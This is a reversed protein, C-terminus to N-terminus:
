FERRLTAVAEAERNSNYTLGLSVFDRDERGVAGELHLGVTQLGADSYGLKTTKRTVRGDETVWSPLTLSVSTQTAPEVRYLATLTLGTDAVAHTAGLTLRAQRSDRYLAFNGGATSGAREFQLEVRSFAEWDAAPPWAFAGAVATKGAANDAGAMGLGEGLGGATGGTLTHQTVAFSASAAEWDRTLQVGMAKQEGVGQGTFATMAAGWGHGLNRSFGLGISQSAALDFRNRALMLDEAGAPTLRMPTLAQSLTDFTTDTALTLRDGGHLSLSAVTEGSNLQSYGTMGAGAYRLPVREGRRTLKQDLSEAHGAGVRVLSSAELQFPARQFGDVALLTSGSAALAARLKAAQERPVSVAFASLPQTSGTVSASTPVFLGDVPSAAAGLDLLGQGYSATDAYVGTRNATHLVREVIQRTTLSPFKEMLVALSGSVVPAAMSTGMMPGYGGGPATSISPAMGDGGFAALCWQATETTGCANSYSALKGTSDVAVVALWGGRLEAFKEPLRAWFQPNAASDNGAAFVVVANGNVVQRLANTTSPMFAYLEDATRFQTIDIDMGWSNNLVRAGKDGALSFIAAFDADGLQGGVGIPLLSAGWAVGHMGKGDKAAGIIGAVHTGHGDNDVIANPDGPSGFMRGGAAIRGAFEPHNVDVGTDIVAVVIGAGSIAATGSSAYATSANAFRLGPM